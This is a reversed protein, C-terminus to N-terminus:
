HAWQHWKSTLVGGGGNRWGAMGNKAGKGKAEEWWWRRNDTDQEEALM